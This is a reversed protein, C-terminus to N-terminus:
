RRYTGTLMATALAHNKLWTAVASASVTNGLPLHAAAAAYSQTGKPAGSWSLAPSRNEGGCQSHVQALRLAAGDAVDPSTLELAHGATSWLALCAAFAALRLACARVM